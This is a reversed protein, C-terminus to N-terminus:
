GKFRLVVVVLGSCDTRERFYVIAVLSLGGRRRRRGLCCRCLSFELGREPSSSESPLLKM